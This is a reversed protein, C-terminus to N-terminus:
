NDGLSEGPMVKQMGGNEGQDMLFSLEKEIDSFTEELYHKLPKDGDTVQTYIYTALIHDAACKVAYVQNNMQNENESTSIAEQLLNIALSRGMGLLVERLEDPTLEKKETDM